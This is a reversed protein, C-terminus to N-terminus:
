GISDLIDHANTADLYKKIKKEDKGLRALLQTKLMAAEHNSIRANKDAWILPYPYGLFLPDTSQAALLPLINSNGLTEFRFIRDSKQHLKVFSTTRDEETTLPYNWATQPSLEDLAATAANGTTTFITSTKALACVNKPLKKLYSNENTLTQELTGDIMVYDVEGAVHAATALETFRRAVNGMRSIEARETGTRITSDTSAMTLDAEKLLQKKEGIIETKYTINNEGTATIITYFYNKEQAIRKNGKYTCTFIRIAQVSFNPAKLLEAQGGDIYNITIEETKPTITQFATKDIRITKGNLIISDSEASEKYSVIISRIKEALQNM